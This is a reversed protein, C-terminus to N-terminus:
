SVAKLVVALARAIMLKKIVWILHYNPRLVPSFIFSGHYFQLCATKWRLGGGPLNEEMRRRGDKCQKQMRVRESKGWNLQTDVWFEEPFILVLYKM